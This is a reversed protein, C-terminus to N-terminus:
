ECRNVCKNYSEWCVGGVATISVGLAAACGNRLWTLEAITLVLNEGLTLVDIAIVGIVSAAVCGVMLGERWGLNSCKKWNKTCENLCNNDAKAHASSAPDNFITVADQLVEELSEESLRSISPYKSKLNSLNDKNIDKYQAYITSIKSSEVGSVTLALFTTSMLMKHFDQDNALNESLQTKQVKSLVSSQAISMVCFLLTCILLIKNKLNKKNSNM